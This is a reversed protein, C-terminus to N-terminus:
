ESPASSTKLLCLLKVQRNVLDDVDPKLLHLSLRLFIEKIPKGLHPAVFELRQHAIPASHKVDHLNPRRHAGRRQVPASIILVAGRSAVGSWPAAPTLM